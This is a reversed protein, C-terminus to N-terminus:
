SSKMSAAHLNRKGATVNEGCLWDMLRNIDHTYKEVTAPSKESDKLFGTFETITDGTIIRDM